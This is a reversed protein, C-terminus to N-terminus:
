IGPPPSQNYRGHTLLNYLPVDNYPFFAQECILLIEEQITQHQKQLSHLLALKSFPISFKGEIKEKLENIEKQLKREDSSLMMLYGTGRM